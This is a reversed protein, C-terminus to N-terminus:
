PGVALHLLKEFCQLYWMVNTFRIRMPLVIAEDVADQQCQLVPAIYLRQRNICSSCDATGNASMEDLVMVQCRFILVAALAIQRVFFRKIRDAILKPALVQIDPNIADVGIPERDNCRNEVPKM